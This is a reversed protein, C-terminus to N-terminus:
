DSQNMSVKLLDSFSDDYLQSPLKYHPTAARAVRDSMIATLRVLSPLASASILSEKQLPGFLYKDSKKHVVVRFLGCEKHLAPIPYIIIHADNFQSTITLPDYDLDNECWIIHVNDNGIHRKKYIQQDNQPDTPILPAVHYMIEFRDDAYYLQYRGNSFNTNDLKGNFGLHTSLDVFIGISRLFSKFEQSVDNWDNALIINQDTQGKKVYLVGIKLSERTTCTFLNNAAIDYLQFPTNILLDAPEYIVNFLATATRNIYLVNVGSTEDKDEIVHKSPVMNVGANHFPQIEDFKDLTSAGEEGFDFDVPSLRKFIGNDIASKISDEFGNIIENQVMDLECFQKNNEHEISPIKQIERPTINVNFTTSSTFTKSSIQIPDCNFYLKHLVNRNSIVYASPPDLKTNEDFSANWRSIFTETAVKLAAKKSESCTLFKNKIEKFKYIGDPFQVLSDVICNVLIRFLVDDISDKMLISTLTNIYLDKFEPFLKNIRQLYMPFVAFLRYIMSSESLQECRKFIIKFHEKLENSIQDKNQSAEEFLLTTFFNLITQNLLVNNIYNGIISYFKPILPINWNNTSLFDKTSIQLDIAEFNYKSCLINFVTVLTTLHSEVFNPHGLLSELFFPIIRYSLPAFHTLTGIFANFALDLVDNKGEEFAQILLNIWKHQQEDSLDDKVLSCEIISKAAEFLYKDKIGDLFRDLINNSLFSHDIQIQGILHKQSQSLIFVTQAVSISDIYMFLKLIYELSNKFTWAIKINSLAFRYCILNAEKQTLFAEFSVPNKVILSANPIFSQEFNTNKLRKNRAAAKQALQVLAEDDIQFFLPLFVISLIAVYRATEEFWNGQNLREVLLDFKNTDFEFAFVLAKTIDPNQFRSFIKSDITAIPVSLLYLIRVIKRIQVMAIVWPSDITQKDLPPILMEDINSVLLSSFEEFLDEKEVILKAISFTHNTDNFKGRFSSLIDRVGEKIVRVEFSPLVLYRFYILKKELTNQNMSIHLAKVLPDNIEGVLSKVPIKTGSSILINFLTELYTLDKFIMSFLPWWFSINIEDIRNTFIDLTRQYIVQNLNNNTFLFNMIFQQWDLPKSYGSISILIRIAMEYLAPAYFTDAQYYILRSFGQKLTEITDRTVESECKENDLLFRLGEDWQPIKITQPNNPSISDLFESFHKIFISIHQNFNPNSKILNPFDRLFRENQIM